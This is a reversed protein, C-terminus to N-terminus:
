RRRSPPPPPETQAPRQSRPVYPLDDAGFNADGGGVLTSTAPACNGIAPDLMGFVRTQLDKGPGLLAMATATTFIKNNSAPRFLKGESM